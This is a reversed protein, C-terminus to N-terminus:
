AQVTADLRGIEERLMQDLPVARLRCKGIQKVSHVRRLVEGIKRAVQCQVAMNEQTLIETWNRGELREFFAVLHTRNMLIVRPCPVRAYEAVIRLGEIEADLREASDYCKMVVVKDDA